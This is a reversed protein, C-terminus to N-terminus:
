RAWPPASSSKTAPAPAPASAMAKPPSAGASGFGSVENKDGYQPDSKIKLKVKLNGGILQDTDTLRAIGLAEMISRLQQRGIEEAKPNANETNINGYVVRGEHSPGTIDYRVAIYQGTGAKTQKLEASHITATYWGAPLCEYSGGSPLDDALFSKGLNAM